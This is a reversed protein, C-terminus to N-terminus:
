EPTLVVAVIRDLPDLIAIDGDVRLDCVKIVDGPEMQRKLSQFEIIVM